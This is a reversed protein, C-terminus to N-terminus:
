CHELMEAGDYPQRNSNRWSCPSTSDHYEIFQQQLVFYL